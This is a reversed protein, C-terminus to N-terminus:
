ALPAGTIPDVATPAVPTFIDEAAPRAAGFPEGDKVKQVMEIGCSVGRNGNFNFPYFTLFANVYCGSYIDSPDMVENLQQDVVKPKRDLAAKGVIVLKGKEEPGRDGGNPRPMDGDYVTIKKVDAGQWKDAKGQARAAAIAKNLKAVGAADSKDLLFNASYKADGGNAFSQPKLLHEYSLRVNTIVVQNERINM